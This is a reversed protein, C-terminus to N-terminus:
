LFIQIYNCEYIPREGFLIYIMVMKESVKLHSVTGRGNRIGTKMVEELVVMLRLHIAVEHWKFM